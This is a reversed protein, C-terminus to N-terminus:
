QKTDGLGYIGNLQSQFTPDLSGNSNLRIISSFDNFTGNVIIRGSADIAMSQLDTVTIGAPFSFTPDISGDANLRILEYRESDKDSIRVLIKGDAQVVISAYTLSLYGLNSTFTTDLTGDANLRVLGDVPQGNYSNFRGVVLIKGDPLSIIQNVHKWSLATTQIQPNISPDVLDLISHGGRVAVSLATIILFFLILGKMVDLTSIGKVIQTTNGITQKMM